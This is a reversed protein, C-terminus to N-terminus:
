RKRSTPLDFLSPQEDHQNHGLRQELERALMEWQARAASPMAPDDAQARFYTAQDDLRPARGTRHIRARVVQLLHHEVEADADARSDISAGRWTCTCAGVYRYLGATGTKITRGVHMM